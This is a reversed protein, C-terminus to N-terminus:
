TNFEGFRSPKTKTLSTHPDNLALTLPPMVVEARIKQYHLNLLADIGLTEIEPFGRGLHLPRTELCDIKNLLLQALVPQIWYGPLGFAHRLRRSHRVEKSNVVSNLANESPYAPEFLSIMEEQDSFEARLMSDLNWGMLVMGANPKLLQELTLQWNDALVVDDELVVLPSKSNCCLRWCLLHSLGIGIAGPSWNQHASSSILRSKINSNLLERGDIGDIRLLECNNLAKQNREIFDAWRKPTRKLSIVAVRM